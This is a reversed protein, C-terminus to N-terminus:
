LPWEAGGIPSNDAQWAIQARLGAELDVKPRFGLMERARTTDAWTHRVDGHQPAEHVIRPERGVIEGIRQIVHGVTVQSGGGINLVEGVLDSKAALLTAEVADAVYTFDRTQEGDGYVTVEHGASIWRIFRHFAMDPRQRPGYVTFYRLSIVPVGFNRYYLYCLKECALKTVGYPSIPQLPSEERLPLDDSDGYVSSSSAFVFKRLPLGKAAELLRQTAAVNSELYASFNQGWSARVGAQAAQHFVVEVGNLLKTLDVLNLDGEIFEFRSETRLKALNGEKVTRPYYDTFSDVGRVNWGDAVLREALHSGIFGAVGTVLANNPM